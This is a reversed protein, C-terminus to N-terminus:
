FCGCFSFSFFLIVTEFQCTIDAVDKLVSCDMLATDYCEGTFMKVRFQSLYFWSQLMNYLISHLFVAEGSLLLCM